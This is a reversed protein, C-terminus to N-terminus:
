LRFIPAGLGRFDRERCTLVIIQLGEAARQLVLHMRELRKEDTNVLADDLIVAAPHGGRKLVDALALRTVVAVQERAGASLRRFDEEVGGRQLGRIELTTEDFEVDTDPHILRLYPAVRSKIPGLWHEKAERQAAVLSGYLLRSADAELRLRELRRGGAELEGELRAIEEGVASAGQGELEGELRQVEGRLDALTRRIEALAQRRARLTLAVAEPDAAALDQRRLEVVAAKSARDMEAAGLDASLAARNREAEAEARARDLRSAEESRYRREAEVAARRTEQEAARRRARELAQTAEDLRRRAATRAARAAAPDEAVHAVDGGGAAAIAQMEARLRELENRTAEEGEPLLAELRAGLTGIESRREAAAALRARADDLSAVRHRALLAALDRDAAESERRLSEADGGPEITIRGFGELVFVTGTTVRLPATVDVPAGAADRVRAPDVPEFGIVPAAVSLRAAVDRRRREAAELAKIAAGDPVPAATEAAGLPALAARVASAEALRRQLTEISRHLRERDSRGRVAEDAAEAREAAARATTQAADAEAVAAALLRAERTLLEAEEAIRRMAEDAKAADAILADRRRLREAAGERMAEVHRLDREADQRLAELGATRRSQEEAAEFAAEAKALAEDREYSALTARRSELRQLKDEFAQRLQRRAGLEAGLSEIEQEALKVPSSKAERGTDTFFRDQLTKAAVILARGRDGGLIRGVEGELSATVADRGEGIDLGATSRGQEVWLLGFAGAFDGDKPKRAASHTFRFLEALREEVADGSLRGGPWSLEAEPKQLFTKRLTYSTDALDFGVEVEPRASRNYPALARVTEGSARHKQFFAARLATLLTSKGAENDGVIVNLGPELLQMETAAVGAFDVLKLSRLYM